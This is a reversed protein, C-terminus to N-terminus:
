IFEIRLTKGLGKAIKALTAVTTNSKGTEIMSITKQPMHVLESLEKQTLNAETRALYLTRMAQYEGETESWAQAFEPDELRNALYDKYNM